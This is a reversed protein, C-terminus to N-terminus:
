EVKIESCGIIGAYIFRESPDIGFGLLIRQQSVKQFASPICQVAV